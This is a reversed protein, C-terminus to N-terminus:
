SVRTDVLALGLGREGRELELSFVEDNSYEAEEEEDQAEEEEQLEGLRTVSSCDSRLAALCEFVLGGISSFCFFLFCEAENKFLCAFSSWPHFHTVVGESHPDAASAWPATESGSRMMQNQDAKVLHVPDITHPSNPPTFLCAPDLAPRTVESTETERTRLELNLLKKSLIHAGGCSFEEQKPTFLPSSPSLDDSLKKLTKLVPSGRQCPPPPSQPSSPFWIRMGLSSHAGGESPCDSIM